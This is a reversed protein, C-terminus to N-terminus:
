TGRRSKNPHQRYQPRAYIPPNLRWNMSCTHLSVSLVEVTCEPPVSTPYYTMVEAVTRGLQKSVLEKLEKFAKYSEKPKPFM